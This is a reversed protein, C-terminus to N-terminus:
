RGTGLEVPHAPDAAWGSFSAVYLRAPPLGAHEMALVNMCASVGSGCYTVTPTTADVGLRGFHDRLEAPPRVLATAPDITATAPASAAGPIHGPRPDIETLEGTFREASRADMVVAGPVAALGATEVADAFRDAPWPRPTFDLVEPIAGAGTMLAGQWATIGGALLAADCGIMRLMVVLRGATIGGTDDYAIVTSADGIGLRSMAAAFSEPEPFPHRGATPRQARTSLDRELDVFVAGPLHGAEYAERGSRGDLYWRVDALVADPHDVLDASSIIPPMTTM